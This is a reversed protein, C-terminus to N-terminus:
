FVKHDVRRMNNIYYEYCDGAHVSTNIGEGGIPNRQAIGVDDTVGSSGRSLAEAGQYNELLQEPSSLDQDDFM